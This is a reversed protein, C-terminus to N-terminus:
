TKSVSVFDGDVSKKLVKITLGNTSISEGASLTGLPARDMRKDLITKSNNVLIQIAGTGGTKTLDIKYVIIGEQNSALSYFKNGRRNEIAIAATPSLKYIVLKTGSGNIGMPTIFHINETSISNSVCDVQTDDIWSLFFKNWGILDTMAFTSGMLDFPSLQGQSYDFIHTLGLQHGTEHVLWNIKTPDGIYDGSPGSNSLFFSKGDVNFGAAGSAGSEVNEKWDPTIINLFDYQSFDIDSDSVKLTDLIIKQHNMARAITSNPLNGYGDLLYTNSPSPLRYTKEVIEFKLRYKGYSLESFAKEANPIQVNKWETVAKKNLSLDNFDVFLVIAKRDGLSPIYKKDRPFGIFLDPSEGIRQLKCENTQLFDAKNSTIPDKSQNNSLEGSVLIGKNWILKNGSKICTYKKGNVISTDNIKSCSKGASAAAFGFPTSNSLIASISVAILLTRKM